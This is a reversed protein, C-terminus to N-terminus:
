SEGCTIALMESRMVRYLCSLDGICAALSIPAFHLGTALDLPMAALVPTGQGDSFLTQRADPDGRWPGGLARVIWEPL